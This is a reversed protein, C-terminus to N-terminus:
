YGRKLYEKYSKANIEDADPLNISAWIAPKIGEKLFEDVVEATIMWYIIAALVGSTPCVKMTLEPFELIADGIVGHNDIVIDAIEYLKKGSKHKPKSARSYTLNTLAILNVGEKKALLALEVIFNQYGSVSNVLLVDGSVINTESFVYRALGDLTDRPVRIKSVKRGPVPNDVSVDLRFPVPFMLGGARGIAEHSLLHGNDFIHFVGGNKVSKVILTAAKKINKYENEEIYKMLERIKDLYEISRQIVIKGKKILIRFYNLM